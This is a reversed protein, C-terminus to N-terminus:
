SARLWDLLSTYAPRWGLLRRTKASSVEQDRTFLGALAGLEATAEDLPWSVARGGGLEAAIADLRVTEAVGHWIAGPTGHGIAALYLGTLDARHVVPWRVGPEGIYVGTGSEAAKRAFLGPVLGGGDGYVMGPRLVQGGAALVRREVEARWAVFPHPDPASDEDVTGGGLVAVGTTYLLPPGAALLADVGALDAQEGLPAGAHLVLDFGKAAPTLSAPDTLDAEIEPHGTPRGDPHRLATVEHGALATAVASGIYGTAGIILIKM